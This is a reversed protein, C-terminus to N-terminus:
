LALISMLVDSRAIVAGLATWGPRWEIQQYAVSCTLSQAYGLMFPARAVDAHV